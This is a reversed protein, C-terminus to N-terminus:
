STEEKEQLVKGDMKDRNPRTSTIEPEFLTMIEYYIDEGMMHEETNLADLYPRLVEIARDLPEQDQFRIAELVLNNFKIWEKGMSNIFCNAEDSVKNCYTDRDIKPNVERPKATGIFNGM